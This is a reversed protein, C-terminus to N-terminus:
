ESIPSYSKNKSGLVLNEAICRSINVETALELWYWEGDPNCELFYIENDKGVIMDFVSFELGFFKNFNVLARNVKEPLSYASYRLENLPACRWDEIAKDHEQSFIATSFVNEGIVVVRLEFNKDIYQQLFVPALKISEANTEIDRLSIKRAVCHSLKNDTHIEFSNFPKILINTPFKESFEYISDLENSVITPPAKLGLKKAVEINRIKGSAATNAEPSNIWHHKSLIKHLNSILSSYEQKFFNRSNADAFKKDISRNFTTSSIFESRRHWISLAEEREYKFGGFSCNIFGENTVSFTYNKTLEDVCEIQFTVGLKRVEQAVARQTLKDESSTLCLIKM